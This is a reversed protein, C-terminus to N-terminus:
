RSLGDTVTELEKLRAAAGKNGPNIVLAAKYDAIALEKQGSDKIPRDAGPWRM